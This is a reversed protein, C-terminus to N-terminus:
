EDEWRCENATARKIYNCNACLLQYDAPVELVRKYIATPTLVRREESGNSRVHDIQLARSDGFGCQVCVSGLFVIAAARYGRVHANSKGPNRRHWRGQATLEDAQKKKRRTFTVGGSTEAM